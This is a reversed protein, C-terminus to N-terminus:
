FADPRQLALAMRYLLASAAGFPLSIPGIETRSLVGFAAMGLLAAPLWGFHQVKLLAVSGLGVVAWIPAGVLPSLMAFVALGELRLHQEGLVQPGLVYAAMVVLAGAVVPALCFVLATLFMRRWGIRQLGGPYSEIMSM